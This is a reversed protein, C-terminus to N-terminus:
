SGSEWFSSVGAKIVVFLGTIAAAIGAAWRLFLGMTKVTTWANVMEKTTSTDGKVARVDALLADLKQALASFREEDRELRKNTASRAAAAERAHDALLRRTESSERRVGTLEAYIQEHSVSGDGETLANAM